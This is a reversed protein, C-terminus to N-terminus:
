SVAWRIARRGFTTRAYFETASVLGKRVLQARATRLRSPSWRHGAIVALDFVDEDTIPGCARLTELVFKESAEVAENSISEAAEHSTNPDTARAEAYGTKSM